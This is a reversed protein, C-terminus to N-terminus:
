ALLGSLLLENNWCCSNRWFRPCSTIAEPVVAIYFLWLSNCYFINRVGCYAEILHLPHPGSIIWGKQVTSV